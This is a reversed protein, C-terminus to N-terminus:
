RLAEEVLGRLARSTAVGTAALTRAPETTAGLRVHRAPIDAQALSTLALEAVEDDVDLLVRDHTRLLEDLREDRPGTLVAVCSAADAAATLRGMESAPDDVLVHVLRGTAQAEHGRAALRTALRRAAASTPARGSALRVDSGWAAVVAPGRTGLAVAGGAVWADEPRCLVAVTPPLAVPAAEDVRSVECSDADVAAGARVPGGAEVPSVFAAVLRDLLRRERPPRASVPEGGGAAEDPM